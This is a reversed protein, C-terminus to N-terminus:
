SDLSEWVCAHVFTVNSVVLPETYIGSVNLQKWVLRFMKMEELAGRWVSSQTIVDINGEQFSLCMVCAYPLYM